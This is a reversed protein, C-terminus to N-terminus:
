ESFLPWNLIPTTVEKIKWIGRDKITKNTREKSTEQKQMNEVNQINKRLKMMQSTSTCMTPLLINKLYSQALRLCWIIKSLYFILLEWNRTLFLVQFEFINFYREM